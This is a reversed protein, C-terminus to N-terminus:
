ISLIRVAQKFDVGELEMTLKIADGHEGCGFCYFTNTEPFVVFSPHKENHFPCLAIFRVGTKRLQM